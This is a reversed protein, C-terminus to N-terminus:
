ATRSTVQGFLASGTPGNCTGLNHARLIKLALECDNAGISHARALADKARTRQHPSDIAFCRDKKTRPTGQQQLERMGPYRSCDGLVREGQFIRDSAKMAGEVDDKRHHESGDVLGDGGRAVKVAAVHGDAPRQRLRRSREAGAGNILGVFNRPQAPDIGRQDVGREDGVVDDQRWERRFLALAVVGLAPQEGRQKANRLL